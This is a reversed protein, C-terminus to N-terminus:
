LGYGLYETADHILDAALSLDASRSHLNYSAEKVVEVNIPRTHDEVREDFEEPLM